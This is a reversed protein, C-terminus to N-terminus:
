CFKPTYQCFNPWDIFTDQCSFTVVFFQIESQDLEFRASGLNYTFNGAYIPFNVNERISWEYKEKNEKLIIV